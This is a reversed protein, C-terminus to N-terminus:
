DSTPRLLIDGASVLPEGNATITANTLTYTTVLQQYAPHEFSVSASYWGVNRFLTLDRESDLVFTGNSDTRITSAQGMIQAGKKADDAGPAQYPSVRKVNVGAIPQKSQADLVRGTIRPSVYQSPSSSVCGILACVSILGTLQLAFKM